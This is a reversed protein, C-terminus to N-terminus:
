YQGARGTSPPLIHPPYPWVTAHCTKLTCYSWGTRGHAQVKADLLQQRSALNINSLGASHQATSMNSCPLLSAAQVGTPNRQSLVKQQLLLVPKRDIFSNRGRHTNQVTLCSITFPLLYSIIGVQCGRTKYHATTCRRFAEAYIYQLRVMCTGKWPTSMCFLGAASFALM